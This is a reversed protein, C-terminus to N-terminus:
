GFRSMDLRCTEDWEICATPMPTDFGEHCTECRDAVAKATGFQKEMEAKSYIKEKAKGCKPCTTKVKYNKATM